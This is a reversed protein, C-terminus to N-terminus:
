TRATQRGVPGGRLKDQDAGVANFIRRTQAGNAKKQALECARKHEDENESSCDRQCQLL